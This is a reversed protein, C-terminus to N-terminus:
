RFAGRYATAPHTPPLRDHGFIKRRLTGPAYAEKALGRRRLEPMVHEIFETYSGPITANIVNVGDIGAAQWTALQRAIQEPTGTVRSSTGALRGIDRVTAERGVAAARAWDLISRVGQTQIDALPDDDLHQEPFALVGYAHWAAVIREGTRDDLRHLNVVYISAGLTAEGPVIEM